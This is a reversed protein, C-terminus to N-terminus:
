GANGKQRRNHAPILSERFPGLNALRGQYLVQLGGTLNRAMQLGNSVGVTLWTVTFARKTNAAWCGELVTWYGMESGEMSETTRDRDHPRFGSRM